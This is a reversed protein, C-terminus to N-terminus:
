TKDSAKESSSGNETAEDTIGSIAPPAITELVEEHRASVKGDIWARDM